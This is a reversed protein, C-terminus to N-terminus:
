QASVIFTYRSPSRANSSGDRVDLVYNGPGPLEAEASFKAGVAPANQWGFVQNGNLDLVRFAMNLNAPSEMFAVAIRNGTARFSYHDADGLPLISGAVMAGLSIPTAQGPTDNPEADSDASGDLTAVLDYGDASRANSSGDRVEILYTGPTKLDAWGSYPEGANAAGQWGWVQNGGADLVRFAMNLDSPSALFEVNLQGQLPTDIAYFDADGRPLISASVGQGLILRTATDVTDNPEDPDPTPALRVSVTYPDPSRANSSGDRVQVIYDGPTKLDAWGSYLEGANAAGQWGWIQSGGADLVRFAMNLNAPTESFEVTLEGQRQASIRYNDGDGLPLINARLVAGLPLVTADAFVDNPESPDATARFTAVMGYPTSSRANSSGDRVEVFYIGPTAIDAWGSYLDGANTAGQWGWVQAGSQNLVRFAMNLEDPSANFTVTLEGQHALDVRYIDGDGRPLINAWVQAGIDLPTASAINNNPEGGDYAPDLSAVLGYPIASRANSSGDRVEIIYPGPAPLDATGTYTDGIATAGQWGWVQGGTADLVRFAMNLGPPSATFDVTLQGMWDAKVRYNDGDGLPLINALLDQNWALPTADQFRDNPEATDATPIFSTVMSYPAPSAANSSGDRVEILYDGPVAIDAWASFPVGAQAAGQWGWIQGGTANLVRFAINIGSPVSPFSVTLEGQRALSVAYLDGDGLPEITGTVSSGINVPTADAPANNPEAETVTVGTPVIASPSAVAPTVPAGAATPIATGPVLQGAPGGIGGIAGTGGAVGGGGSSDGGDDDGGDISNGQGDATVASALPCEFTFNWATGSTDECNPLVKVSATQAGPPVDFELTGSGSVCGTTRTVGGVTVDMQDKINFMEWTFGAKGTFGGLDVEVGGGEDGGSDVASNCQAVPEGADIKAILRYKPIPLPNDSKADFYFEIVDEAGVKADARVSFEATIQVNEGPALDIDQPDIRDLTLYQAPLEPRLNLGAVPYATTNEVRFVIANGVTGAEFSERIDVFELDPLQVQVPADLREVFDAILDFRAARTQQGMKFFVTVAEGSGPPAGALINFTMLFNQVQGPALKASRPKISTIEIWRLPLQPEAVFDPTEFGSVNQVRMIVQNGTTGPIFTDRLRYLNMGVQADQAPAWIAAAFTVLLIAILRRAIM